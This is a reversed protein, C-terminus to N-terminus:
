VGVSSSDTPRVQACPLHVHPTPAATDTSTDVAQDATMIHPHVM